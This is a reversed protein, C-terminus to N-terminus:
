REFSFEDKVSFLEPRACHLRKFLTTNQVGLQVDIADLVELNRIYGDWRRIHMRYAISDTHQRMLYKDQSCFVYESAIAMPSYAATMM